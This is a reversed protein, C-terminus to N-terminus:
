LRLTFDSIYLFGLLHLFFICSFLVWGARSREEVPTNSYHPTSFNSEFEGLSEEPLAM